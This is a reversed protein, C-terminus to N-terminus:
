DKTIAAESQKEKNDDDVEDKLAKHFSVCMILLIFAFPLAALISMTELG